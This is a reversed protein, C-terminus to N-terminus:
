DCVQAAETAARVAIGALLVIRSVKSLVPGTEQWSNEKAVAFANEAAISSNLTADVAKEVAARSRVDKAVKLSASATRTAEVVLHVADASEEAAASAGPRRGEGFMKLVLAAAKADSAAEEHADQGAVHADRAADYAEGIGVGCEDALAPRALVTLLAAIGLHRIVAFSNCNPRDHTRKM